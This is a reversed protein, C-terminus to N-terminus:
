KKGGTIKVFAKWSPKPKLPKGPKFLGSSYCFNCTTFSAPVDQWAFWYFSKLKLRHRLSIMKKLGSTLQKAQKAPTGMGFVTRKDSGWGMETIHIPMSKDGHDDLTDRVQKMLTELQSTNPTYPHIAVSDFYRDAKLKYLKDLYKTSKMAKRPIEVPSGYLGSAMIKSNPDEADLIRRSIKLLKAYKTPSVPTTFYHFNVENWIQWTRIPMKPVEPNDSWFTGDPGYRRVSGRLLNKWGQIQTTNEIPLTTSKPAFGKPTGLMIPLFKLNAEASVRVIRDMYDFNLPDSPKQQVTDWTFPARYSAVGGDSMKEADVKEYGDITMMGFFNAPASASTTAAFANTTGVVALVVVVVALAALRAYLGAGDETSRKSRWYLGGVVAGTVAILMLILPLISTGGSDGGSPPGAKALAGSVDNDSDKDGKYNSKSKEDKDKKKEEPESSSAGLKGQLDTPEDTTPATTSTTPATDSSGDGGTNGTGGSGDGNGNNNGPEPIPAYTYEGGAPQGAVSNMPLATFAVLVLLASIWKLVKM